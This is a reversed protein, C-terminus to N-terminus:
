RGPTDPLVSSRTSLSFSSLNANYMNVGVVDTPVLDPTFQIRGFDCQLSAALAKALTTKGTGPVDEILVHGRSLLAILVHKIATDNGVIIRQVSNCVNEALMQASTSVGASTNVIHAVLQKFIAVSAYTIESGLIYSLISVSPPTTLRSSGVFWPHSTSPNTERAGGSFPSSHLPNNM